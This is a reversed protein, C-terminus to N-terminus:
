FSFRPYYSPNSRYVEGYDTLYGNRGRPYPKRPLIVISTGETMRKM